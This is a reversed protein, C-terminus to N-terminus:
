KQIEWDAVDKQETELYAIWNITMVDIGHHTGVPLLYRTLGPKLKETEPQLVAPM